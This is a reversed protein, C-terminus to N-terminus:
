NNDGGYLNPQYQAFPVHEMRAYEPYLNVGVRGITGDRNKSILIKMETPEEGGFREPNVRRLRAEWYLLLVINSCEEIRGSQRLDSLKPERIEENNRNFQSLCITGLGNQLTVRQLEIINKSTPFM